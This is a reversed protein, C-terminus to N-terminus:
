QLQEYFEEELKTENREGGYRQVEGEKAIAEREQAIQRKLASVREARELAQDFGPSTEPALLQLTLEIWRSERQITERSLFVLKGEPSVRQTLDFERLSRDLQQQRASLEDRAGDLESDMRGLRVDATKRLTEGDSVYRHLNDISTRQDDVKQQADQIEREIAELEQWLSFWRSLDDRLSDAISESSVSRLNWRGRENSVPQLLEGSYEGPQVMEGTARLRAASGGVVLPLRASGSPDVIAVREAPIRADGVFVSVSQERAALSVFWPFSRRSGDIECMGVYLGPQLAPFAATYREFFLYGGAGLPVLIVVLVFILLLARRM